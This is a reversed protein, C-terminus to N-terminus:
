SLSRLSEGNGNFSVVRIEDGNQLVVKYYIKREDFNEITRENGIMKWDSFEASVLQRNIKEPLPINRHVVTANVLHGYHDYKAYLDENKSSGEITIFDYRNRNNKIMSLDSGNFYNNRKICQLNKFCNLNSENVTTSKHYNDISYRDSAPQQAMSYTAISFILSLTLVIIKTKM